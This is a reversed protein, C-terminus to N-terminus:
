PLILLGYYVHKMISIFLLYFIYILVHMKTVFLFNSSIDALPVYGLFSAFNSNIGRTIPIIEPRKKQHLLSLLVNQKSGVRVPWAALHLCCVNLYFLRRIIQLNDM